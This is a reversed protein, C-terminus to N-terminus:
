QSEDVFEFRQAFISITYGGNKIAFQWVGNIHRCHVKIQTVDSIRANLTGNTYLEVAFYGIKEKVLRLTEIEM